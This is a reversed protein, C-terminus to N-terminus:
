KTVSYTKILLTKALASLQEVSDILDSAKIFYSSSTNKDLNYFGEFIKMRLFNAM